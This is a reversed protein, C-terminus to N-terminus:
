SRRVFAAANAGNGSPKAGAPLRTAM